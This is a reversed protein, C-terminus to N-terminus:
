KKRRSAVFDKRGVVLNGAANEPVHYIIDQPLAKVFTMGERDPVKKGVRIDFVSPLVGGGGLVVSRPGRCSARGIEPEVGAVGAEDVCELGPERRGAPM